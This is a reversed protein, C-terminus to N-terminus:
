SYVGYNTVEFRRYFHQNIVKTAYRTMLGVRRVFDTLTVTPTRWLPVYPAYVFGSKLWNAGKYGLVGKATSMFPDKYFKVGDLTGIFVIGETEGVEASAFQPLAEVVSALQTGCVMFNPTAKGGTALFVQNKADTLTNVFTLQHRFYDVGTPPTFNWQITGENDSVTELQSVVNRDIEFRIQEAVQSMLTVQAEIGHIARFDAEAEVSWNTALKYTDATIMQSTLILDLEPNKANGESIYTYSALVQKGTGVNADFTISIAGTTYDITGSSVHTGTLNGAGDDVAIIDVTTHATVTVMNPRLPIWNLVGSYTAHANDGTGLLEGNVAQSTFNQNATHGTLPSLATSGSIVSGKNSSYRTDLYFILSTPGQMPQVSVIETAILNPYVARIIPYAFRDFAGVNVMRVDEDLNQVYQRNNELLRATLAAKERQGKEILGKCLHGWRGSALRLNENYSARYQSETLNAM